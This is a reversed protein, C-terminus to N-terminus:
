TYLKQLIQKDFMKIIDRVSKLTLASQRELFIYAGGNSIDNLHFIANYLNWRICKNEFKITEKASMGRRRIKIKLILM